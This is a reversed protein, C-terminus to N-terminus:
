RRDGDLGPLLVARPRRVARARDHRRPRPDLTAAAGPAYSKEGHERHYRSFREILKLTPNYGNPEILSCRTPSAASRGSRGRRTTSTTCCAASSRSTSAGRRTRCKTSTARTSACRRSPAFRRNAIAIAEAAADVGVLRAPRAPPSSSTRMPATAAASTSSAGAGCRCWPARSTPRAAPQRARQEEARQDHVPLRRQRPRRRRITPRQAGDDAHRRERGRLRRVTRPAAAAIPKGATRRRPELVSRILFHPRQKVEELVRAVYDGIVALRSSSSAASCWCRTLLTM